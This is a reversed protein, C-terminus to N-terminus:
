GASQQMVGQYWASGISADAAAGSKNEIVIGWKKPMTGGFAARVSFPNSNYVTANAVVNIIGIRKLNSPSTLTIAANVGTAGDGYTTGDDASGYAFVNVYGASSVGSGGSKFKVQVLVDLFGDTNEIVTSERAADNGLSTLTITIPQNASGYKTKFDM